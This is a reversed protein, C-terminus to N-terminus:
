RDHLLIVDNTINQSCWAPRMEPNEDEGRRVDGVHSLNVVLEVASDQAWRSPELFVRQIKVAERDGERKTVFRM